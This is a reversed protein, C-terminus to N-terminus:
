PNRLRGMSAAFTGPIQMMVGALVEALLLTGSALQRGQGGLDWKPILKLHPALGWLLSRHGAAFERNFRGQQSATNPQGHSAKSARLRSSRLGIGVLIGTRGPGYVIQSVATGQRACGIIGIARIASIAGVGGKVSIQRIAAITGVIASVTFEAVAEAVRAYAGLPGDGMVAHTEAGHTDGMDSTVTEGVAAYIDGMKPTATEGVVHIDGMDSGEAVAYAAAEAVAHSAAEM